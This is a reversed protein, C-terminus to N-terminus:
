KIIVKEGLIQENNHRLVVLYIGKKDMTISLNTLSTSATRIKQGTISYIDIRNEGEPMSKLIVSMDNGYIKM